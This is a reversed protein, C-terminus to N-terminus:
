DYDTYGLDFVLITGPASEWQRTVTVEHLKGDAIVVYCPLPGNHDLIFYSKVAGKTRRAKGLRFSLRM